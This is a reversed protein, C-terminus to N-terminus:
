EKGVIVEIDASASADLDAAVTGLSYTDKLDAKLNAIADTMTPKGHIETTDFTYSDTNGTSVVKYGKGELFSKMKSAAGPTGGGNLVKIDFTSKDVTAPTPTPTPRAFLTPMHTGKKSVAFLIGGTTIAVIITVIAWVLIPKKGNGKHMSIEPMVAPERRTTYLEEVLSKRAPEETGVRAAQTEASSVSGEQSEPHSEEASTANAEMTDSEESPVESLAVMDDEVVEVVQTVMPPVEKPKQEEEVSPAGAM